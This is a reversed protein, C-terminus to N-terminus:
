FFTNNLGLFLDCIFLCYSLCANQRAAVSRRRRLFLLKFISIDKYIVVDIEACKEACTVACTVTCTVACTVALNILTQGHISM